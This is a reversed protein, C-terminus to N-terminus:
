GCNHPISGKIWQQIAYIHSNIYGKVKFRVKLLTELTFCPLCLSIYHVFFLNLLSLAINWQMERLFAYLSLWHACCVIAADQAFGWHQCDQVRSFGPNLGLSKVLGDGGCVVPCVMIGTWVYFEAWSKNQLSM